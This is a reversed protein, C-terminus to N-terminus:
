KPELYNDLISDITKCNEIGVAEESFEVLDMLKYNLILNDAGFTNLNAIYKYKSQIPLNAIIDYATGYMKVLEHAKKPGIGPVGKVNDGSDGQLVKISIHDEPEYDYHENWTDFTIEKRTVYSFRSIEPSIFLDWDKDSSALWIERVDYKKYVKCIYGALDDAEVGKFRLVPIDTTEKYTELISNVEELFALFAEREADTQEANKEERNLKYIPSLAKRYTSTGWDGALILKGCNYSRRLSNITEMYAELFDSAGMHKWRFALNLTDVVMLRNPDLTSMQKFTKVTM